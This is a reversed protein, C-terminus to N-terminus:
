VISLFTGAINGPQMYKFYRYDIEELKEMNSCFLNICLFEDMEDKV